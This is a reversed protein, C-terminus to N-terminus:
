LISDFGVFNISATKCGRFSQAFILILPESVLSSIKLVMSLIDIVLIWNVKDGFLLLIYLAFYGHV